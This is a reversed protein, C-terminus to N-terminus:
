KGTCLTVDGSKSDIHVRGGGKGNTFNLRNGPGYHEEVPKPGFCNSIDGSFTQVDFDADPATTFDVRVDGSVSTADLQGGAALAGTVHLDGSVTELHARTLAGLVLQADGSVTNVQLDGDAGSLNIDGSVTQLQTTHSSHAALRVDGSVTNAELNGTVDGAIDGSVTKLHQNGSVGSIRLDASVLSVELASKQPVRIKLHAASADGSGNWSNGSPLVVRVTTRNGSNNIDVREVREGITGSVDVTPQDWGSVEITGAVNVIEVTGAPDAPKQASFNRMAAQAPLNWACLLAGAALLAASRMAHAVSPFIRPLPNM